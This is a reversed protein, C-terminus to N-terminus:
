IWLWQSNLNQCVIKLHKNQTKRIKNSSYKCGPLYIQSACIGDDWSECSNWSKEAELLKVLKINSDNLIFKKYLFPLQYNQNLPSFRCFNAHISKPM